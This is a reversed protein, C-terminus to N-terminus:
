AAVSSVEAVGVSAEGKDRCDVCIFQPEWPYSNIYWYNNIEDQLLRKSDLAKQITEVPIDWVWALEEMTTRFATIGLPYYITFKDFWNIERPAGRRTMYWSPIEKTVPEFGDISKLYKCKVCTVYEVGAHKYIKRFTKSDQM